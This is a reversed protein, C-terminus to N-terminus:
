TRSEVANEEELVVPTGCWKDYDSAVVGIIANAGLRSAKHKLNTLSSEFIADFYKVITRNKIEPVTVSLMEPTEKQKEFQLEGYCKPCLMQGGEMYPTESFKIKANCRECQKAM